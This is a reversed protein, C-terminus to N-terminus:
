KKAFRWIAIDPGRHLERLLLAGHEPLRLLAPRGAGPLLPRAPLRLAAALGGLGARLHAGHGPARRQAAPLAHLVHPTGPVAADERSRLLPSRRREGGAAPAETAALLRGIVARARAAAGAVREWGGGGAAHAAGGGPAPYALAPSRASSAAALCAFGRGERIWLEPISM